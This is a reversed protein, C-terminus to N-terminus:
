RRSPAQGAAIALWFAVDRAALVGRFDSLAGPM